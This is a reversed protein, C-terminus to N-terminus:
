FLTMTCLLVILQKDLSIFTHKYEAWPSRVQLSFNAPSQLCYPQGVPDGHADDESHRLPNDHSRPVQLRTSGKWVFKLLGM